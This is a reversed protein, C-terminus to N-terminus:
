WGPITYDRNSNPEFRYYEKYSSHYYKDKMKGRGLHTKLVIVMQQNTIYAYSYYFQRLPQNVSQIVLKNNNIRYYGEFLTGRSAILNDDIVMNVQGTPYFKYVKKEKLGEQKDRNQDTVIKELVYVGDTHLLATSDLKFNSRYFSYDNRAYRKPSTCGSILWVVTFILIIIRYMKSM